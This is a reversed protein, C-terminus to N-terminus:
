CEELEGLNSDETSGTANALREREEELLVGTDSLKTEVIDAASGTHSNGEDATRDM